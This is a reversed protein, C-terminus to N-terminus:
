GLKLELVPALVHESDALEQVVRRAHRIDMIVVLVLGLVVHSRQLTKDEIKRVSTEHGHTSLLECVAIHCELNQAVQDGLDGALREGVIYLLV